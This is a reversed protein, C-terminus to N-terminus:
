RESWRALVRRGHEATIEVRSMKALFRLAEAYTSIAMSDLTGDLNACQQGVLEAILDTAEILEASMM